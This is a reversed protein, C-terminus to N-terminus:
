PAAPRHRRHPPHQAPDHRRRGRHRRHQRQVVAQRPCRGHAPQVPLAEEAAGVAGGVRVATDPVAAPCPYGPLGPCGLYRVAPGTSQGREAGQGGLGTATSSTPM